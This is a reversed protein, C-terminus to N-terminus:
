FCSPDADPTLRLKTAYIPSYVPTEVRQRKINLSLRRSLRKPKNSHVERLARRRIHEKHADKTREEANCSPNSAPGPNKREQGQESESQSRQDRNSKNKAVKTSKPPARSKSSERRKGQGVSMLADVDNKIKTAAVAAAARKTRRQQEM